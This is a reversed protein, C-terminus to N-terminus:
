VQLCLYLCKIISFRTSEHWKLSQECSQQLQTDNDPSLQKHSRKDDRIGKMVELAYKQLDDLALSREQEVISEDKRREAERRM